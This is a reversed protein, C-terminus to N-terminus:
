RIIKNSCFNKLTKCKQQIELIKKMKKIMSLDKSTKIKDCELCLLQVNREDFIEGGLEIPVIHDLILNETEKGCKECKKGRKKIVMEKFTAQSLFRSSFEYACKESCYRKRRKSLIPKECNLCLTRGQEDVKNEFDSIRKYREHM